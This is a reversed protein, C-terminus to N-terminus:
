KQEANAVNSENCKGERRMIAEEIRKLREEFAETTTPAAKEVHLSIDYPTATVRGVGDSVCLWVIPASTDMLLVSSNPSLQITDVSAKGNVQIVQQFPLANPQRMYMNPYNGYM